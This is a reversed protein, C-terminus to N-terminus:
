EIDSVVTEPPNELVEPHQLLKAMYKFASAYYHGDCIREDCVVTIDMYKKTKTTGDAQLEYEKRRTGISIFVPLNGFDYLHHHIPAIGLSAMSTIFMTGHFPSLRTVSRPLLGFYDLTKLFWVVFKLIVGPIYTLGKAFHDMNNKTEEKKNESVLKNLKEYIGNATDDPMTELKIVTEPANLVLEKKVTLCYEVNNRAYIKQGRIYRNLAPRQSLVRTYAALVVYLMGFGKLGEARKQRIYEECRTIEIRERFFNSAGIRTPMIYSQIVNMPMINKLRRGEKAMQGGRGIRM